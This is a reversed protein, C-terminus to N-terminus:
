ADKRFAELAETVTPYIIIPVDREVDDYYFKL